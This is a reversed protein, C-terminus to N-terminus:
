WLPASSSRRRRHYSATHVPSYSIHLLRCPTTDCVVQIKMLRHMLHRNQLTQRRSSHILDAPYTSCTHSILFARSLKTGLGSPLFCKYLLGNHIHLLIPFHLYPEQWELNLTSLSTFALIWAGAATVGAFSVRINMLDSDLQTRSGTQVKPSSSDREGELFGVM